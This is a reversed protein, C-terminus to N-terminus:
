ELEVNERLRRKKFGGLERYYGPDDAPTFDVSTHIAKNPALAELRAVEEKNNDERAWYLARLRDDEKKFAELDIGSEVLAEYWEDLLGYHAAFESVTFQYYDSWHLHGQLPILYKLIDKIQYSTFSRLQLPLDGNLPILYKKIQYSTFNEPRLAFFAVYLIERFSAGLNRWIELDKIIKHDWTRRGTFGLLYHGVANYAMDNDIHNIDVYFSDQKSIYEVCQMNDHVTPSDWGSPTSFSLSPDSGHEVLLRALDVPEM